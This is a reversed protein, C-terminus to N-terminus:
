ALKKKAKEIAENIMQFIISRHCMSEDNCFCCICINKNMRYVLYFLLNLFKKSEQNEMEKRFKKSYWGEFAEKNWMGHYKCNLYDNLLKESPSLESVLREGKYLYKVKRCIIWVEDFESKRKRMEKVSLM